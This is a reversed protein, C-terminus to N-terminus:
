VSKQKNRARMCFKCRDEEKTRAHDQRLHDTWHNPRLNLDESPRGHQGVATRTANNWPAVAAKKIRQLPPLVTSCERPVTTRDQKESSPASSYFMSQPSGTREPTSLRCAVTDLRFVHCRDFVCDDTAPNNNSRLLM